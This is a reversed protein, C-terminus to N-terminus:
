IQRTKHSSAPLRRAFIFFLFRAFRTMENKITKNIAMHNKGTNHSISADMSLLALTNRLVGSETVKSLKRLTTSLWVFWRASILLMRKDQLTAKKTTTHEVIAPYANDLYLDRADRPYISVIRNMVVSGPVTRM